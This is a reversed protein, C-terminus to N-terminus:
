GGLHPNAARIADAVVSRADAHRLLEEGHFLLVV